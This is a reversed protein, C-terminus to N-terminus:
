HIEVSTLGSISNVGGTLEKLTIDDTYTLKLVVEGNITYENTDTYVAVVSPIKHLAQELEATKGNYEGTYAQRQEQRM